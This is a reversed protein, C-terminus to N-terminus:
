QCKYGRTEMQFNVIKADTNGLFFYDDEKTHDNVSVDVELVYEFDTNRDIFDVKFDTKFLYGNYKTKYNDYIFDYSEPETEKSLIYQHKIKTLKNEKFFYTFTVMRNVCTLFQENNENTNLNVEPYDNEVITGIKIYVPKKGDEVAINSVLELKKNNSLLLGDMERQVLLNKDGDYLSIYWNYSSINTKVQNHNIITYTLQKNTENYKFGSFTHNEVNIESDEVLFFLQDNNNKLNIPKEIQPDAVTEDGRFLSDLQPLFFVVSAFIVIVVFMILSTMRNKPQRLNGISISKLAAADEDLKQNNKEIKVNNEEPTM